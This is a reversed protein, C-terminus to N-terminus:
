FKYICGFSIATTNQLGLRLSNEATSTLGMYEENNSTPKRGEWSISAFGLASELAFHENIDLTLIPSFSAGYNLYKVVAETDQEGQSDKSTGISASLKLDIGFKKVKFLNYRAFPAVAWGKQGYKSIYDKAGTSHNTSSSNQLYLNVDLGASWKGNFRYGITPSFTFTTGLNKKTSGSGVAEPDIPNKIRSDAQWNFGLSGGLYVQANATITLIGATLIVFIKKM